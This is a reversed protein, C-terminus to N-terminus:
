RLAFTRLKFVLVVLELVFYALPLFHKVRGPLLFVGKLSVHREKVRLNCLRRRLYFRFIYFYTLYARLYFGLGRADVLQGRFYLVAVVREGGKHAALILYVIQREDFYRKRGVARERKELVHVIDDGHLGAEM